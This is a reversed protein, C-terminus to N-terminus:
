IEKTRKNNPECEATTYFIGQAILLGILQEQCWNGKSQNSKERLRHHLGRMLFRYKKSYTPPLDKKM